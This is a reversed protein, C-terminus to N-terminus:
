CMKNQNSGCNTGSGGSKSENNGMSGGATLNRVDGVLRLTPTSYCLRAGNARASDYETSNNKM